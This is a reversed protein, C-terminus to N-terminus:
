LDVEESQDASLKIIFQLFCSDAERLSPSSRTFAAIGLENLMKRDDLKLGDILLADHYKMNHNDSIFHARHSPVDGEFEDIDFADVAAVLKHYFDRQLLIRPEITGNNNRSSVLTAPLKQRIDLKQYKPKTKNTQIYVSVTVPFWLPPSVANGMRGIGHLAKQQTELAYLPNLTGIHTYASLAVLSDKGEAPFTRFEKPDWTFTHPKGDHLIFNDSTAKKAQLGALRGQMTLITEAKMKGSKRRMLDCPANLVVLLEKDKGKYLDGMEYDFSLGKLRKALEEETEERDDQDATDDDAEFQNNVTDAADLGNEGEAAPVEETPDDETDVGADEHDTIEVDSDEVRHRLPPRVQVRTYMEAVSATPGNYAGEIGRGAEPDSLAMFAPSVPNLTEATLAKLNEGFLWVLYNSLTEGEDILRFRLLYAIDKPELDEIEGLLKDLAKDVSRRWESLATQINGSFQFGQGIDLLVDTAEPELSLGNPSDKIWDKKLFRFRLALLPDLRDPETARMGRVSMRYQKANEPEADSSMLVIAPIRTGCQGLLTKLLTQSEREAETPQTADPKELYYDLFVLDPDSDAFATEAGDVGTRHISMDPRIARLCAELRSLHKLAAGKRGAFHGGPDYSAQDDIFSKFLTTQLNLVADSDEVEGPDGALVDKIIAAQEENVGLNVLAAPNTEVWELLSGVEATADASLLPADYGDDIILVSQIDNSEFAKKMRDKYRM